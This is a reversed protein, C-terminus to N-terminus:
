SAAHRPTAGHPDQYCRLWQDAVADLSFTQVIRARAEAGRARRENESLDLAAGMAQALAAPDGPPVCQGTDGMLETVGGCDTGIVACGSAMAEGIVLPLGEWASSLVFTDAANLLAPMDQRVGLLETQAAIGLDDIQRRLTTALPGDGAIRLRAHPHRAAVATFARLLTPYDKAPVLRGAALFLFDDDNLTLQRRVAVRIRADAAFRATDIGNPMVAIRAAPVARRAVFADAAAQSVQTTLDALRDTLRYALMRRDGGENMSHASCILLPMPCILRTVRCMLNAHVMHSHVVDPRITRILRALRWGAHALSWPSRHARLEIVDLSGPNGGRAIPVECPGSLSVVTVRHGRAAFAKALDAVQMEAGGLRLGTLVLMINM